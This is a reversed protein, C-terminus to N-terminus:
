GTLRHYTEPCDECQKRQANKRVHLCAAFLAVFDSHNFLCHRIDLRFLSELDALLTAFRAATDGSGDTPEGLKSAAHAALRSLGRVHLFHFHSFLLFRIEGHPLESCHQVCAGVEVRAANRRGHTHADTRGNLVSSGHPYRYGGAWGIPDDRATNGSLDSVEAKRGVGFQVDGAGSKIGLSPANPRAWAGGRT